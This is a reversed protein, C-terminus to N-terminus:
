AAFRRRLAILLVLASMFWISPVGGSKQATTPGASTTPAITSTPSVTTTPAVTTTTPHVTTTPSVPTTTTVILVATNSISNGYMDTITVTYDGASSPQVNTLTLTSDTAGAIAVGDFYWQYATEVAGDVTASFHVTSGDAATQSIPATIMIIPPPNVTLTADDSVASGAINSVLVYYIGADTLQAGDIQYTANTANVILKSSKMWQYSFPATGDVTVSITVLAGVAVTSSSALSTWATMLFLWMVVAVRCFFAKTQV